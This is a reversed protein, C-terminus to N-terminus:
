GARRRPWLRMTHSRKGLLERIKQDGLTGDSSKTEEGALVPAGLLLLGLLFRM